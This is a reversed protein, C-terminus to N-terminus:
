PTKISNALKLLEEIECNGQLAYYYEGDNWLLIHESSDILFYAVKGTELTLLTKELNAYETNMYPEGVALIQQIFQIQVKTEKKSVKVTASVKNEVRGIEEYEEGWEPERQELIEKPALAM